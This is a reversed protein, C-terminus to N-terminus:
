QELFDEFVGYQCDKMVAEPLFEILELFVQLRASNYLTGHLVDMGLAPNAGIVGRGYGCINMFRRLVRRGAPSSFVERMDAKLQKNHRERLKEAAEKDPLNLRERHLPVEKKEDM